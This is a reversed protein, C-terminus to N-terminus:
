NKENTLIKQLGGIMFRFVVRSNSSTYSVLFYLADGYVSICREVFFPEPVELAPMGRAGLIAANSICHSALYKRAMEVDKLGIGLM